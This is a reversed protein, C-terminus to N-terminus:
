QKTKGSLNCYKSNLRYPKFQTLLGLNSEQQVCIAEKFLCAHDTTGDREQVNELTSPHSSSTEAGM